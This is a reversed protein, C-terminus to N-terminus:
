AQQYSASGSVIKENWGYLVGLQFCNAYEIRFNQFEAGEWWSYFDAPDSFDATLLFKYRDERNRTVSYATAGYNLASPAIAALGEQLADGRLGTAYWPIQVTGGNSGAM